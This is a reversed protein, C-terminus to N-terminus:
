LAKFFRGIGSAAQGIGGVFGSMASGAVSPNAASIVVLIIVAAILWVALRAAVIGKGHTALYWIGIIFLVSVVAAMTRITGYRRRERWQYAMRVM